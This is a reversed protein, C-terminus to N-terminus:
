RPPATAATLALAVAERLGMAEGEAIGARLVPAPVVDTVLARHRPGDVADMRLPHFGVRTGLVDTAGLLVAAEYGRGLGPLIAAITHVCTITSSRDGITVLDKLVKALLPGAEVQRGLDLLTKALIWGSSAAAYGNGSATAQAQSRTLVAIAEATRGQARRLQGRVMDVEAELWAPLDPDAAVLDLLGEAQELDGFAAHFYAAYVRAHALVALDEGDVALDIAQQVHTRASVLDGSLYACRSRGVHAAAVISPAVDDHPLALARDLMRNGDVAQGMRFHTWSLDGAIRLASTADGTDEAHRLAARLNDHEAQALRWPPEDGVYQAAIRGSVGVAWAVQRDQLDRWGEPNVRTRCHEGITRLVGFRRGDPRDVTTVLSASVLDSLLRAVAGTPLDVVTRLGDLDVGGPFVAVAHLAARHDEDLPDYSWDMATALTRHRPVVGRGARLLEFRDDLLESVQSLSLAGLQGAALEIALPIGDLAACLHTALPATREDLAFAPDALRAREALLQVAEAPGDDTADARLSPVAMIQEGPVGLPQRSTALVRLDPGAQLLTTVLDAAADVVHECNDLVLLAPRSRLSEVLAETPSVGVAGVGVVRAVAAPVQDPDAIGALEVLWPGDLGPRVQRRAAELALRTKGVGGVGTLTLLRVEGLLRGITGLQPARGVFSTLPVPLTPVRPGEGPAQPQVRPAHGEAGAAPGTAAGAPGGGEVGHEVGVSAGTSAGAPGEALDTGSESTVATSGPAGHAPYGGHAAPDPPLTIVLRAGGDPDGALLRPDQTLISQHVGQLAPGPDAGLDDALRHRLVDYADLADAQRGARYLAIMQLRVLDEDVPHAQRLPAVAEVAAAVEGVALLARVRLHAAHERHATMVPVAAAAFPVAGLDALPEGRWCALAGDLLALAGVPDEAICGGARSITAAVRTVDVADAPVALLYGGPVRPLAEGGLASRLRSVYARLTVAASAPPEDGWLGEALRATPVQVGPQLALMALVARQLRSGLTLVADDRQALVPGLLSIQLTGLSVEVSSPSTM